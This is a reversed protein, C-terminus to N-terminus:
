FSLGDEWNPNQTINGNSLVREQTPIPYLRQGGEM